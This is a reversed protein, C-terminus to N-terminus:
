KEQNQREGALRSEAKATVRCHTLLSKRTVKWVSAKGGGPKWEKKALQMGQAGRYNLLNTRNIM